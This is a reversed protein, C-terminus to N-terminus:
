VTSTRAPALSGPRPAPLSDLFSRVVGDFESANTVLWDHSGRESIYTEVNAILRGLEHAGRPPMTNDRKGWAVLTPVRLNRVDERLNTKAALRVQCFFNRRHVFANFFVHHAARLTLKLELVSDWFRGLLVQALSHTPHAGISDALILAPVREPFATAFSVAAAGSNSHAILSARRIGLEDFFSALWCGYDAHNWPHKLRASRGCGPMAVTIVRHSRALKAAIPRYFGTRVLQSALIVTPPGRGEDRFEIRV